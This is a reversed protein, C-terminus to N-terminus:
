QVEVMESAGRGSTVMFGQTSHNGAMNCDLAGKMRTITAKQENDEINSMLEHLNVEKLPLLM